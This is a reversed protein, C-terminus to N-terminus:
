ALWPFNRWHNLNLGFSPKMKKRVSKGSRFGPSGSGELQRGALENFFCSRKGTHCAADGIQEIKVLVVDKDCDTYLAKLKQVNGSEEGKKWLKKRSRSWYTVNGSQITHELAERNAFAFM